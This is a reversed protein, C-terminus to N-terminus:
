RHELALFMTIYCAFDGKSKREGLMAMYAKHTASRSGGDQRRENWGMFTWATRKQAYDVSSKLFDQYLEQFDEDSKCAAKSKIEEYLEKAVEYKLM